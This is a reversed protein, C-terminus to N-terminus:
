QLSAPLNITFIADSFCVASTTMMSLHTYSVPMISLAGDYNVYGSWPDRAAMVDKYNYQTGEYFAGFTPQYVFHTRRSNVFGKIVTNAMELPSGNGGIGTGPDANDRDRICM